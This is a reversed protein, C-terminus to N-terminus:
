VSKGGQVVVDEAFVAMCLIESVDQHFEEEVQNELKGYEEEHQIAWDGQVM